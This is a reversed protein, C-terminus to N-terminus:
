NLTITMGDTDIGNDSVRIRGSGAQIIITAPTTEGMALSAANIEIKAASGLSARIQTNTMNVQAAGRLLNIRSPEVIVQGLLSGLNSVITAQDKLLKLTTTGFNGLLGSVDIRTEEPRIRVKSRNAASQVNAEIEGPEMKLTTDDGSYMEIKKGRKLHIRHKGDADDEDTYLAVEGRELETLRYRRDDVAIVVSHSRMGGLALLIAEADKHPHSTFGYEQFREVGDLTESALAGLQLEQLKPKDNILLVVARGVMLLLRRRFPEILRNFHRRLQEM